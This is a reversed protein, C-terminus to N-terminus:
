KYPEYTLALSHCLFFAYKTKRSKLCARLMVSCSNCCKDPVWSKDLNGVKIGFYHQKTFPARNQKWNLSLFTIKKMYLLSQKSYKCM